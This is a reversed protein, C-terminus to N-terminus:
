QTDGLQSSHAHPTSPLAIQLAHDTLVGAVNSEQNISLLHKNEENKPVQIDHKQIHM